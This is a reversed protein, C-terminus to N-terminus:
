QCLLSRYLTTKSTDSYNVTSQLFEKASKLTYIITM